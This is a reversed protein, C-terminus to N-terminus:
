HLALAKEHALLPQQHVVVARDLGNRLREVERRRECPIGSVWAPIGSVWSSMPRLLRSAYGSLSSFKPEM